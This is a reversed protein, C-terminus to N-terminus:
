SYSEKMINVEKLINLVLSLSFNVGVSVKITDNQSFVPRGEKIVTNVPFFWILAGGTL